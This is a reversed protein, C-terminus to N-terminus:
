TVIFFQVSAVPWVDFESTSDSSELQALMQCLGANVVKPSDM